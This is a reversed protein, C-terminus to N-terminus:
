IWKDSFQFDFSDGFSDGSCSKVSLRRIQQYFLRKITENSLDVM